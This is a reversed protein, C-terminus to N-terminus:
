KPERKLNRELKGNLFLEVMRSSVDVCISGCFYRRAPKVRPRRRKPSGGRDSDPGFLGEFQYQRSFFLNEPSFKVSLVNQTISVIRPSIYIVPSIGDSRGETGGDRRGETGGDSRGETV